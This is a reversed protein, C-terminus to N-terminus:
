GREARRKAAAEVLADFLGQQQPDGAATLEPHWQVAVAYGHPSVPEIAEVCGDPSTATVRLGDGLRDVSQHHASACSEAFTSGLAAAVGSGPEAEVPHMGVHLKQPIGHSLEDMGEIDGLHQHLTGGRAVNVVQCGRCIALLPIDNDLAYGALALELRDRASIFGYSKDHAEQGYITPDLDGGGILCLGDVGELLEAPDTQPTGETAPYVVVRAGARQLAEVYLTSIAVHGSPRKPTDAQPLINAVAAIVAQTV